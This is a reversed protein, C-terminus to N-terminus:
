DLVDEDKASYKEIVADISTKTSIGMKEFHPALADFLDNVMGIYLRNGFIKQCGGEGLISDLVTRIQALTKNTLKRIEEDEITLFGYEKGKNKKNGIVVSQRKFNDIIKNAEIYADNFKFPLDIDLTDFVITDGNDNVEIEYLGKKEVRLQEM